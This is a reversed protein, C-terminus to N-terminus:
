TQAADVPPDTKASNQLALSVSDLFEESSFPKSLTLQAGLKRAIRLYEAGKVEGGGSIAIIRVNKNRRILEMIVELGDIEPMVLDTIVLDFRYQEYLDCALKGNSAERVEYGSSTLLLTLMTRLQDDDEVLLISVMTLEREDRGKILPVWRWMEGQDEVQLVPLTNPM